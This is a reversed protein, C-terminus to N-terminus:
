RLLDALLIIRAVFAGNGPDFSRQPQREKYARQRFKSPFHINLDGGAQEGRVM